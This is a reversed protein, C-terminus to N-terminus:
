ESRLSTVPNTMAARLAQYSITALAIVVALLGALAFVWWEITIRYAFDQLWQHMIYYALPCAIVIAILVLQIFDKSL